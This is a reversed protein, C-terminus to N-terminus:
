KTSDHHVSTLLFFSRSSCRCGCCKLFKIQMANTYFPPFRDDGQDRSTSCQSARVTFYRFCLRRKTDINKIPATDLKGLAVSYHSYCPTERATLPFVKSRHGISSVSMKFSSNIIWLRFLRRFSYSDSMSHVSFTSRHCSALFVHVRTSFPNCYMTYLFWVNSADSLAFRIGTHCAEGLGSLLAVSQLKLLRWSSKM